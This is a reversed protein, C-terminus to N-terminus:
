RPRSGPSPLPRRSAPRRSRSRRRSLHRCRPRSPATPGPPPIITMTCVPPAEIGPLPTDAGVEDDRDSGVHRPVSRRGSRAEGRQRRACGRRSLRAPRPRACRCRSPAGALDGREHCGAALDPPEHDPGVCRGPGPTWGRPIRRVIEHTAESPSARDPARPRPRWRCRRTREMAQVHAHELGPALGVDRPRRAARSGPRRRARRARSRPCARRRSLTISPM